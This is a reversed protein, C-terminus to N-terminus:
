RANRWNGETAKKHFKRFLLELFINNRFFYNSKLTLIFKRKKGFVFFASGRQWITILLGAEALIMAAPLGLRYFFSIEM